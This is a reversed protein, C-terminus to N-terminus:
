LALISYQDQCKKQVKEKGKNIKREGFLFRKLIMGFAYFSWQMTIMISM